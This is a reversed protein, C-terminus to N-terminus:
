AQARSKLLWFQGGWLPARRAGMRVPLPQLHAKGVGPVCCVGHYDASIQVPKTGAGGHGSRLHSHKPNVQKPIGPLVSYRCCLHILFGRTRARDWGRLGPNQHQRVLPPVAPLDQSGAQPEAQKRCSVSFQRAKRFCKSCSETIKPHCM